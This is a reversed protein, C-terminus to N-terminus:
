RERRVEEVLPQLAADATAWQDVFRRRHRAARETDGLREHAAAQRQQAIALYILDFTHLEDLAEFWRASEEDRGLQYLSEAILYRERGMSFFPSILMMGFELRGEFRM